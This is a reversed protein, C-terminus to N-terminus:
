EEIEGMFFTSTPDVTRLDVVVGKGQSSSVHAKLYYKANKSNGASKGKGPGGKKKGKGFSEPKVEQIANLFATINDVIQDKDFSGKAVGAHVIGGKDTRYQIQGAQQERLAELLKAAPVITGVKANPMLGRPGLLRAVSSLAPMMDPTALARDFALPVTGDALSSILDDGGAQVLEAGGGGQSIASEALAADNTFM